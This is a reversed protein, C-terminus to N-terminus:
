PASSSLTSSKVKRYSQWLAIAFLINKTINLLNHLIWMLKHSGSEDYTLYNNALFLFFNGGYYILVALSIWLMPLHEIHVIPLDNLLRYFYFLCFGILILSAVVNSVSNFVWPGQFVSINVLCFLIFLLLITDSVRPRPLEKKFVWVLLSFQAILYINGILYTNPQTNTSYRIFLLSILDTTLSLLLILCLPRFDDWIRKWKVLAITLPFFVSGLSSYAILFEPRM